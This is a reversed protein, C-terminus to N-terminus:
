ATATELAPPAMGCTHCQIARADARFINYAFGVPSVNRPARPTHSPCISHGHLHLPRTPTSEDARAGNSRYQLRMVDRALAPPPHM